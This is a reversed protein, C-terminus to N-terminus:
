QFVTRLIANAEALRPQGVHTHKAILGHDMPIFGVIDWYILLLKFNIQVWAWMGPGLGLSDGTYGDLTRAAFAAYWNQKLGADVMKRFTKDGFKPIGDINDSGDGCLTKYLRVDQYEIGEFKKSPDTMSVRGEKLKALFDADNSHILIEPSDDTQCDVIHAIVDDAEWGPVEIMIKPSRPVLLKFLELTDRFADAMPPRGGKYDPFLKRRQDKGGIGDFIYISPNPNHWATEFLNRLPLGTSNKEYVRRVWNNCDFVELKM